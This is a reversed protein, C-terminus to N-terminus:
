VSQKWNEPLLKSEPREAQNMKKPPLLIIQSTILIPMSQGKM